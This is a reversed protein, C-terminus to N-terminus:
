TKNAAPIPPRNDGSRMQPTPVGREWETVLCLHISCSGRTGVQEGPVMRWSAETGWGEALLNSPGGLALSALFQSALLASDRRFTHGPSWGQGQPSPARERERHSLVGQPPFQARTEKETGGWCLTALHRSGISLSASSQIFINATFKLVFCLCGCAGKSNGRSRM